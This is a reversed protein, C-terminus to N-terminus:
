ALQGADSLRIFVDIIIPGFQTGSNQILIKLAQEKPLGKRYPLDSVMADYRDAVALIRANM